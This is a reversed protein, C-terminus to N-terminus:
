APPSWLRPPGVGPASWPATGSTGATLFRASASPGAAVSRAPCGAGSWQGCGLSWCRSSRRAPRRALGVAPWRAAAVPQGCCGGGERGQREAPRARLRGPVPGVRWWRCSAPHERGVAPVLCCGIPLRSLGSFPGPRCGWPCPGDRHPAQGTRRRPRWATNATV